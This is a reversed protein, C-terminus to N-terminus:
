LLLHPPNVLRAIARLEPERFGDGGTGHRTSSLMGVAPTVSAALAGGRFFETSSRDRPRAVRPGPRSLRLSIRTTLRTLFLM